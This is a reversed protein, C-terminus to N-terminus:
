VTGEVFLVVGENYIYKQHQVFLQKSVLYLVIAVECVPYVM